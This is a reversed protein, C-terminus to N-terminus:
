FREEIGREIEVLPAPLAAVTFVRRLQVKRRARDKRAQNEHFIRMTALRRNLDAPDRKAGREHFLRTIEDWLPAPDADPGETRLFSATASLCAPYIGRQGKQADDGFEANLIGRWGGRGSRPQGSAWPEDLDVDAGLDVGTRSTSRSPMAALVGVPVCDLTGPILHLRQPVPDPVGIFTPRAVYIPQHPLLPAPDVPYGQLWAKLDGSGLPRDILYWLRVRVQPDKTKGPGASMRLGHKSTFQLICAVDRFEPPLLSVALAHAEVPTLAIVDVDPPCPISDMDLAVWGLPEERLTPPTVTGDRAVRSKTRRLQPEKCEGDIPVGRVVFSLPDRSLRDLISLLGALDCFYTRRFSFLMGRGYSATEVWAGQSPLFQFSKSALAGDASAAVTLAMAGHPNPTKPQESPPYSNSM